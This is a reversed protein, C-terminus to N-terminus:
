RWVLYALSQLESTHEESRDGPKLPVASRIADAEVRRNGQVNVAALPGSDPVPVAAQSETEGAPISPAVGPKEAPNEQPAAAAPPTAQQARAAAVFLTTALFLATRM